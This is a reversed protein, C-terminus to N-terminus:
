ADTDLSHSIGHECRHSLRHLRLSHDRDRANGFDQEPFRQGTRLEDGYQM